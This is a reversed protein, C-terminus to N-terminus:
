KSNPADSPKADTAEPKKDDVQKALPIAPAVTPKTTDNTMNPNTM